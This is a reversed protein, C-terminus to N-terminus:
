PTGREPERSLERKVRELKERAAVLVAQRGLLEEQAERIRASGEELEQAAKDIGRDIAELTGQIVEDM